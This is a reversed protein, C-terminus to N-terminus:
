TIKVINDQSLSIAYELSKIKRDQEDFRKEYQEKLEDNSLIVTDEFISLRPVCRNFLDIKEHNLM